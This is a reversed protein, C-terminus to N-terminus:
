LMMVLLTTPIREPSLSVYPQLSKALPRMRTLVWKKMSSFKLPYIGGPTAVYKGATARSIVSLDYGTENSVDKLIM